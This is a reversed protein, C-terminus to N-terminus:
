SRRAAGSRGSRSSRRLRGPSRTSRVEVGCRECSAGRAVRGSLAAEVRLHEAVFTAEQVLSCLGRPGWHKTVLAAQAEMALHVIDDAADDDIADERGGGRCGRRSEGKTHGGKAERDKDKTRRKTEKHKETQKTPRTKHERPPPGGGDDYGRRREAGVNPRARDGRVAFIDNM